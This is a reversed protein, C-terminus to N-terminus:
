TVSASPLLRATSSAASASVRAGIPSSIYAQRFKDKAASDVVAPYRVVALLSGDPAQTKLQQTVSSTMLSSQKKGTATSACATSMLASALLATKLLSTNVFLGREM